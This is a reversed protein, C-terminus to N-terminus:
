KSFLASGVRIMNSGNKIALEYDGSMGMSCIKAGACKDFIEKTLSFSKNILNTDDSNAGISMVGKLIINPYQKIITNYIEVADSPNVGSKSEEFSSNIQLLCNM